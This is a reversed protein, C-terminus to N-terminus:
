AKLRGIRSSIWGHGFRLFACVGAAVANGFLALVAAGEAFTLRAIGVDFTSAPMGSAGLLHSSTSLTPAARDVKRGGLTVQGLKTLAAPNRVRATV